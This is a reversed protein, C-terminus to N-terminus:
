IVEDLEDEEIGPIIVTFTTGQGEESSVHIFGGHGRVIDYCVSLGLGTGSHKTTFFPTGIKELTEKNMGKGNDSIKIYVNNKEEMIGSEITLKPNTVDDMAEIANKCINLIVQRIQVEDCKIYREDVKYIFDAEVGKILSTTEITSQISDLLDCVAVEAMTCERPKSLSLFDSIITNVEDTNVNIKEAYEDIKIKDSTAMILQSCGKITTLFNRTEHVITAGMQGLLALKEQHLTKQHQEKLSTVDTVVSIRGISKGYINLISSAHVIIKKNIGDINTFTAEFQEETIGYKDANLNPHEMNYNVLQHLERLNMGILKESPLGVLDEYAKNTSIINYNNDCIFAASQMSNLIAYTQIHLNHIEQEKGADRVILLIGDDIKKTNINLKVHKGDRRMFDRIVNETDINTKLNQLDDCNSKFMDNIQSSSLGTLDEKEFYLLNECEKNSFDLRLNNDFTQIGIPIGDLIDNLKKRSRKLEDYAHNISGQFISKHLFYCYIIKFVHGYVMMPSDYTKYLTFCIEAPIMGLLALALFNYSIYGREKIKRRHRILSIIALTIVIMELSIKSLTIGNYDYLIPLISGYNVVAYSIVMPLLISIALSAKKGIKINEINFNISAMFIVFIETLRGFMWLTAALNTTSVTSLKLPEFYWTHTFDFIATSLLGFAILKSSVPSVDYTNWVIFFLSMNFVICILELLSHMLGVNDVWLFRYILVSCLIGVIMAELFMVYYTKEKKFAIYKEIYSQM